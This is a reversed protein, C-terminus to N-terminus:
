DVQEQNGYPLFYDLSVLVGSLPIQLEAKFVKCNAITKYNAETM